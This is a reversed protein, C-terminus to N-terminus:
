QNMGQPGAASVDLALDYRRSEGPELYQLSGRAREAARGEVYCNAPEIGLVHLGAGSENVDGPAFHYVFRSQNM